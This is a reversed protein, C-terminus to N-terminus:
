QIKFLTENLIDIRAQTRCLLGTGSSRKGAPWQSEVTVLLGSLCSDATQMQFSAGSTSSSKKEKNPIHVFATKKKQRTKPTKVRHSRSSMGFTSVPQGGGLRGWGNMSLNQTNFTKPPLPISNIIHWMSWQQLFWHDSLLGVAKTQFSASIFDARSLYLFGTLGSLRHDHQISSILKPFLQNLVPM